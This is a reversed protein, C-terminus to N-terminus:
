DGSPVFALRFGLYPFRYEPRFGIRFASRCREAPSWWGGGRQVRGSAGAASRPSGDIPAGLYSPHWTDECWEWANGHLDHLGWPNPEKTAVAHARAESNEACWAYERLRAEDDGFAFEDGSGARCSCEWESESPLRIPRGTKKSLWACYDKADEWSVDVVPTDDGRSRKSREHGPRFREYQANTVETTAIWFGRRFEVWHVPMEDSPTPKKGWPLGFPKCLKGLWDGGETNATSGM